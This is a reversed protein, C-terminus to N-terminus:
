VNARRRNKLQQNATAWRCNSPTYNGNNNPYRDITHKLSPRLGMDAAFNKYGNPGRWRACVSIGRGGYHRFNVANPNYCRKLMGNHINYLPNRARHRAAAKRNAHPHRKVYRAYRARALKLARGPNRARYAAELARNREPNLRRWKRLCARRRRLDAYPM